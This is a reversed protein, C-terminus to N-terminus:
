AACLPTVTPDAFCQAVLNSDFVSSQPDYFVCNFEEDFRHPGLQRKMSEFLEPSIRLCETAM